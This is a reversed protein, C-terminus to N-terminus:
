DELLQEIKQFLLAIFQEKDKESNLESFARKENKKDYFFIQNKELGKLDHRNLDIKRLAVPIIKKNENILTKLEVDIIYKSSLFSPSILLLGCDCNKIANLIQKNWDKGIVLDNDMWYSYEYKKSPKIYDFLRNIFNISIKKTSHSYSVFINIKKRTDM